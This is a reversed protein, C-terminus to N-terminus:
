RRRVEPIVSDTMKDKQRIIDFAENVMHYYYFTEDPDKHGLYKCLYSFMVNLDEGNLFWENLRHVVFTHRLCHPTPNKDCQKSAETKTWFFRFRKDINSKSVHKHHKNGPFMWYPEDGLEKTLYARLTVLMEKLDEPLYVLRDKHGKGNHVTIIGSDFDIDKVALTCVENNRMGCCYYLRFMVQYEKAIRYHAKSLSKPQCTDIVNFLQRLEEHSLVHVKNESPRVSILPIYAPIGISNLYVALLRAAIIRRNHGTKGEGPKASLWEDLMELSMCPDNYCHDKWYKDLRYLEYAEANYIYGLARKEAIFDNIYPGLVSSYTYKRIETMSFDM